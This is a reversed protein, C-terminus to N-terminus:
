KKEKLVRYESYPIGMEKIHALTNGSASEMPSEDTVQNKLTFTGNASLTGILWYQEYGSPPNTISAVTGSDSTIECQASSTAFSTSYTAWNVAYIEVDEVLQLLTAVEPGYYWEDGHHVCFPYIYARSEDIWGTIYQSEDFCLWLDFDYGTSWDFDIRYQGATLSSFESPDDNRFDAVDVMYPMSMVGSSQDIRIGFDIDGLGIFVYSGYYDQVIATVGSNNIAMATGSTGFVPSGSTGNSTEFNYQVVYNNNANQATTMQNFPRLASITGDKFTAIPQYGDLDSASLEGPFGITGVAQGVQLAQVEATSAMTAYSGITSDATFIAFDNSFPNLNNYKTHVSCNVLEYTGLKGSFTGNKVAVIKDTTADFDDDRCLDYIGYAVHANTIIQNSSISWGTGIHVVYDEGTPIIGILFVNDIFSSVASEWGFGDGGPPGQPGQPGEPGECKAQVLLLLAFIYFLLAAGVKIKAKM